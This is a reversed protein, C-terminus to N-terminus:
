SPEHDNEKKFRIPKFQKLSQHVLLIAEEPPPIGSLRRLIEVEKGPNRVKNRRLLSRVGAEGRERYLHYLGHLRCQQSFNLEPFTFVVKEWHDSPTDKETALVVGQLPNLRDWVHRLVAQSLAENFLSQFTLPINHGVKKLFIKIQKPKGLRVEFRITEPLKGLMWSPLATFDRELGRKASIQCKKLDALKEYFVVESSNSHWRALTGDNAFTSTTQELHSSFHCTGLKRIAGAAPMNPKLVTNKSFHVASVRATPLIDPNLAIIPACRAVLAQLLREFDSNSLEEFNNGFLLKPASFEIRLMEIQKGGQGRRSLGFKPMYDGDFPVTHTKLAEGSTLQVARPGQLHRSDLRFARPNIITFDSAPLTLAITDLM